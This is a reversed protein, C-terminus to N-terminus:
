EERRVTEREDEIDGRGKRESERGGKEVRVKEGDRRM